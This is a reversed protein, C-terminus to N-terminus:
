QKAPCIGDSLIENKYKRGAIWEEMSKHIQIWSRQGEKFGNIPLGENCSSKVTKVAKELNDGFCIFRFLSMAFSDVFEAPVNATNDSKSSLKIATSKDVSLTDQLNGSYSAAGIDHKLM